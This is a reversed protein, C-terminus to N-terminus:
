DAAAAAVADPFLHQLVPQLAVQWDRQLRNRAHNAKRRPEDAALEIADAIGRKLGQVTPDVCLINESYHALSTKPGHRNTVVVAGAAALDLPPYSPHPTDMLSLGVDIQRVLSLYETWPLNQALHPRVGRPLIVDELDRGVFHIEWGEPDLMGEELCAEIVELGRWYLNRLNNPRAYFLFRRKGDVGRPPIEDIASPFAPEFWTGNVRLNPLAEPGGVLHRFLGETNVVFRVEPDRLTESCRLREDGYPYFMREDEQLLYIIRRPNIARRVCWTTWWSTTLFIDRDRVPVERGGAAPSHVFEVNGEWSVRLASLVAGFNEARAPETRTVLRLRANLRRALLTSLIIATGVGGFLSGANISDTVMTV